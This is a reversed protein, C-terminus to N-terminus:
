DRKVASSTSDTPGGALPAPLVDGAFAKKPPALMYKSPAADTAAWQHGAAFYPGATGDANIIGRSLLNWISEGQKPNYTAFVHDFTRNEGIIVIVHKIPTRTHAAADTDDDRAAINISKARGPTRGIVRPRGNV